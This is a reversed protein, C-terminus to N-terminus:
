PDLNFDLGKLNISKRVDQMKRNLTSRRKSQSALLSHRRLVYEPDDFDVTTSAANSLISNTHGRSNNDVFIQGGTIQASLRNIIKRRTTEFKSDEFSSDEFIDDSSNDKKITDTSAMSNQSITSSTSALDNLESNFSSASASNLM